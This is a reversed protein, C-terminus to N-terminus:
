KKVYNSIGMCIGTEPSLIILSLLSFETVGESCHISIGKYYAAKGLLHTALKGTKLGRAVKSTPLSDKM